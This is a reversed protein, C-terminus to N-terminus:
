FLDLQEERKGHIEILQTTYITTVEGEAQLSKEEKLKKYYYKKKFDRPLIEGTESDVYTTAAWKKMQKRRGKQYIREHVHITRHIRHNQTGASGNDMRHANSEGEGRKGKDAKRLPGLNNEDEYKICYFKVNM